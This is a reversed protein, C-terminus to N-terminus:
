LILQKIDLHSDGLIEDMRILKKLDDLGRLHEDVWGTKCECRIM